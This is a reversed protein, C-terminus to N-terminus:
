PCVKCVVGSASLCCDGWPTIINATPKQRARRDHEPGVQDTSELRLPPRYRLAAAIAGVGGGDRLLGPARHALGAASTRGRARASRVDRSLGGSDTIHFLAAM